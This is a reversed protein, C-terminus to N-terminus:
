ISYDPQAPVRGFRIRNWLREHAFYAGFKVATDALGVKAAFDLEGTLLYVIVATILTAVVRWSIAKSLSRITGDM